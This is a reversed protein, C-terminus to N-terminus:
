EDMAGVTRSGARRAAESRQVARVAAIPLRTKIAIVDLIPHQPDLPLTLGHLREWARVREEAPILESRLEQLELRRKAARADAEAALMEVHTRALDIPRLREPLPPSKPENASM